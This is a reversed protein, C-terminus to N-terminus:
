PKLVVTVLMSADELAHLSHVVGGHLYLMQGAGLEIMRGDADFNVRGELCLVTIEGDVRHPPMSRGALLVLRMVEIQESKFLATSKSRELAEGLPRVDFPQASDAHDLAMAVTHLSGVFVAANLM